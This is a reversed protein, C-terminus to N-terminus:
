TRPAAARSGRRTRLPQRRATATPRGTGTLGRRQVEFAVARDDHGTTSSSSPALRRGAMSRQRRRGARVVAHQRGPRGRTSLSRNRQSSSGSGRRADGRDGSGRNTASTSPQSADHEDLVLPERRRGAAVGRARPVLVLRVVGDVPNTVVHNAMSSTGAPAASRTTSPECRQPPRERRDLERRAIPRTPSPPPRSGRVSSTSSAGVSRQSTAAPSTMANCGSVSCLAPTAGSGPWQNLRSDVRHAADFARYTSRPSCAAAEPSEKGMLEFRHSARRRSTGAPRARIAFRLVRRARGRPRRGLCGVGRGSQGQNKCAESGCRGPRLVPWVTATRHDVWVVQDASRKLIEREVELEALRRRLRKIEDSEAQEAAFREPRGGGPQATNRWGTGLSSEGCGLERAVASIPRGSSRVLAVADRKFEPSWRRRSDGM